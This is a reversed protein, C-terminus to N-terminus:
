MEKFKFIANDPIIVDGDIVLQARGFCACSFIRKLGSPKRVKTEDIEFTISAEGRKRAMGSWMKNYWNPQGKSVWVVKKDDELKRTVWNNSVPYNAKLLMKDQKKKISKLTGRHTVTIKKNM